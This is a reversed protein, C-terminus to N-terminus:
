GWTDGGRRREEGETLGTRGGGGGGGRMWQMAKNQGGAIWQYNVRWLFPSQNRERRWRRKFRESRFPILFFNSSSLIVDWNFQPIECCDSNRTEETLWILFSTQYSNCGNLDAAFPSPTYGLQDVRWIGAPSIISDQMSLASIHIAPPDIWLHKRKESFLAELM